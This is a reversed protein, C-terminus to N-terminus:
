WVYALSSYPIVGTDFLYKMAIGVDIRGTPLQIGGSVAWPLNHWGLQIKVSEGPAFELGHCWRIGAEPLMQIDSHYTGTGFFTYSCGLSIEMTHRIGAGRINREIEPYIIHGGVHFNRSIRIQIGFALGLGIRAGSRSSTRSESVHLGLGAALDPSLKLGSSCWMSSLRYGTIGTTSLDLSIGGRWVPFQLSLGSVGVDRILFPTCHRVAMTKNTIWGLGAQNLCLSGQHFRSVYCGGAAAAFPSTGPINGAQLTLSLFFVPIILGPGKLKWSLPVIM